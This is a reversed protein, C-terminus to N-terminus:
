DDDKERRDEADDDHRIRNKVDRGAEKLNENARVAAEDLHRGAREARGEGRVEHHADCACFSFSLLGLFLITKM